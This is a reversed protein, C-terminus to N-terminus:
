GLLHAIGDREELLENLTHDMKSRSFEDIPLDRVLQYEGNGRCLVPFGYIIGEPIGYAGDSPIGMTVWREGAGLAWDRMHDLAANAASAASSFGSGESFEGVDPVSDAPTPGSVTPSFTRSLPSPSFLSDRLTVPSRRATRITAGFRAGLRLGCSTLGQDFLEM